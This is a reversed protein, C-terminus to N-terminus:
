NDNLFMDDIASDDAEVIMNNLKQDITSDLVKDLYKSVAEEIYSQAETKTLIDLAQLKVDVESSTVYGNEKLYESTLIEEQKTEGEISSYSTIKRASIDRVYIESETKEVLFIHNVSSSFITEISSFIKYQGSVSYIGNDLEEVIVPDSLSGTLNTIPRNGLANYDIEGDLASLLTVTYNEGIKNVIYGKYKDDTKISVIQGEYTDSAKNLDEIASNVDEYCYVKSRVPNISLDSGIFINEHTDKTYVIDNADIKGKEILKEIENRNIYFFKARQSSKLNAM